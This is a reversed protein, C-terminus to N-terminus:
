RDEHFGGPGFLSIPRNLEEPEPVIGRHQALFLSLAGCGAGFAMAGPKWAGSVLYGALFGLLSGAAYGAAYIVGSAARPLRAAFRKIM